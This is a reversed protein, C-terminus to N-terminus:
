IGAVTVVSNKEVVVGGDEHRRTTIKKSSSALSEFLVFLHCLEMIGKSTFM